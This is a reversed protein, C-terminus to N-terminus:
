RYIISSSFKLITLVACTFSKPHPADSFWVCSPLGTCCRQVYSLVMALMTPMSRPVVNEANALSLAMPLGSITGFASPSLSVGDAM